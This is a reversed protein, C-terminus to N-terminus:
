KTSREPLTTSSITPSRLADSISSATLFVRSCPLPLQHRACSSMHFGVTPNEKKQTHQAAAREEGGLFRGSRLATGKHGRQGRRGHHNRGAAMRGHLEGEGHLVRVVDVGILRGRFFQDWRLQV